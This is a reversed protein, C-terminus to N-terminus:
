KKFQFSDACHAVQDNSHYEIFIFIRIGTALWKMAYKHIYVGGNEANRKTCYISSDMIFMSSAVFDGDDWYWSMLVCDCANPRLENKEELPSRSQQRWDVLWFM